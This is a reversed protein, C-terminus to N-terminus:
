RFAHVWEIKTGHRIAQGKEDDRAVPSARAGKALARDVPKFMDQALRIKPSLRNLPFFALMASQHHWADALRVYLRTVMLYIAVNIVVRRCHRLPCVVAIAPASAYRIREAAGAVNAACRRFDDRKRVVNLHSLARLPSCYTRGAHASLAGVRLLLVCLLRREQAKTQHWLGHV